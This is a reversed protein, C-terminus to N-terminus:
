KAELQEDLRQYREGHIERKGREYEALADYPRAYPWEAKCYEDDGPYYTM